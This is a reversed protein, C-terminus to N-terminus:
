RHQSVVPLYVAIQRTFTYVGIPEDSFPAGGRLNAILHHPTPELDASRYDSGDDTGADYPYLTIVVQDRWRGQEDLLSLDAVGVFWDPSPAVMTVLTVQPYERTTVFADVGVSGPSLSLGPGNL